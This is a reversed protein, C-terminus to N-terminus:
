LRQNQITAGCHKCQLWGDKKIEQVEGIGSVTTTMTVWVYEHKKCETLHFNVYREQEKLGGQLGNQTSM